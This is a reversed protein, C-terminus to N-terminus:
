DACIRTKLVQEFISERPIGVCNWANEINSDLKADQRLRFVDYEEGIAERIEDITFHRKSVFNYEFIILPRLRAILEGAGRLVKPEYGEVDIMLVTPSAPAITKLVEVDDLTIQKIEQGSEFSTYVSAGQPDSGEEFLLWKEEDGVLNSYNQV